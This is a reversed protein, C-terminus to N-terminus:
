ASRNIETRKSPGNDFFNLQVNNFATARQQFSASGHSGESSTCSHYLIVLHTYSVSIIDFEEKEFPLKDMSAALTEIHATINENKSDEQRKYM